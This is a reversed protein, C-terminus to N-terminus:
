SHAELMEACVRPEQKNPRFIREVYLVWLLNIPM